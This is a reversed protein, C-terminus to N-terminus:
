ALARAHIQRSGYRFGNIILAEMKVEVVSQRGLFDLLVAVRERAPMIRTIVAQFGRFAGEAIEVDDGVRLTQTQEIVRVGDDGVLVRIEAVVNDPIVPWFSGFHVVGAVGGTHQVTELSLKWNFRAFLYNPFLSETVWIPGRSTARKFRIRPNVTELGQNRRLNAAAVHEHRPQSRVCFWALGSDNVSNLFPSEM